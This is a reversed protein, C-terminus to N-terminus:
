SHIFNLIGVRIKNWRNHYRSRKIIVGNSSGSIATCRGVKYRWSNYLLSFEACAWSSRRQQMLYERFSRDTDGFLPCCLDIKIDTLFGKVKLTAVRADCM